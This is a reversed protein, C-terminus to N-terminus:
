KQRFIVEAPEGTMYEIINLVEELKQSRQYNFAYRKDDYRGKIAIRVGYTTEIHSIIEHLTANAMTMLDYRHLIMSSASVQSIQLNKDVADYLARQDPQMTVMNVGEPTQLRVSGRELIVEAYQEEARADVCFATGLVRIKLEGTAVTFPADANPAVEFFAAGDLRVNRATEDFAEPLTLRTNANLWVQTGDDLIIASVVDTTNEYVRYVDPKSLLNWVAGIGVVLLVVAAASVSWRLLRRRRKVSTLKDIRRNTDRMFAAFEAFDPSQGVARGANWVSKLEFFYQRNKESGELWELLANNEAESTEGEFYKNIIADM